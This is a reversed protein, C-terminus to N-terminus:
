CKQCQNWYSYYQAYQFFLPSLFLFFQYRDESSPMNHETLHSTISVKAPANCLRTGHEVVVFHDQKCTLRESLKSSGALAYESPLSLFSRAMTGQVLLLSM